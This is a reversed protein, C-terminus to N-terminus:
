RRGRRFLLRLLSVRLRREAERLAVLREPGLVGRGYTTEVKARAVTELAPRANPLVDGLAGAYEYVTQSPRPGYGLRSAIGTVTGYARDPSTQGRPGRRWTAFAIAGVITALLLAVAVLLGGSPGKGITGAGSTDSPERDPGDGPRRGSSGPGLSSSPRPSTSAVPAGSALPGLAAVGGGTPDFPVWGSGPFYVEVWEHRNLALLTEQGTRENRDGPLYGDAIRSPIGLERLFIAMTTAYYQCYGTKYRAFCEVTSLREEACPLGQVDTSYTFLDNRRFQAEMTKAIDYANSDAGDPAAAVM